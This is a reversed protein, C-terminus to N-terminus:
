KFFDFFYFSPTIAALKGGTNDGKTGHVVGILITKDGGYFMTKKVSYYVGSGSCGQMSPNNLFFFNCPKNNDYRNQTLLGSSLKSEFTLPSFHEISLDIIPYGLYSIQADRSPLNKTVSIQNIPFGWREFYNNLSKDNTKIEIVSLDAIPHNKWKLENNKVISKLNIIKPMDGKQRLIVKSDDKLENTVHQASLLFYKKEHKLITASGVSGQTPTKQQYLLVTSNSLYEIDFLTSDNQAFVNFCILVWLFTIISKM